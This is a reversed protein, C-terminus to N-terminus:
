GGPAQDGTTQEPPAPKLAVTFSLQRDPADTNFASLRVRCDKYVAKWHVIGRSKGQIDGKKFIITSFAIKDSDFSRIRCVFFTPSPESLTVLAQVESTDRDRERITAPDVTFAVPVGTSFASAPLSFLWILAFARAVSPTWARTKAFDSLRRM